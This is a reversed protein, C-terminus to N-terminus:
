WIIITDKEGWIKITRGDWVFGDDKKFADQISKLLNDRDPRSQHPQLNMRKKKAGSWSESMKLIFLINLVDPLDFKLLNAKLIFEKRFAWYRQVIDRKEWKDSRVMRPAPVPRIPFLYVKGTPNIGYKKFVEKIM